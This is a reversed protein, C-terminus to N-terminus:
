LGRAADILADKLTDMFEITKNHWHVCDSVDEIYSEEGHAIADRKVKLKECFDSIDLHNYQLQLVWDCVFRLYKYKFSSKSFIDNLLKEDLFAWSDSQSFDTLSKYKGDSAETINDKGRMVLWMLEMKCGASLNSKAYNIYLKTSEKLFNDCHAYMTLVWARCLYRQADDNRANEALFHAQFLESKRWATLSDLKNQLDLIDL